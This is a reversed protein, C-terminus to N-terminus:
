AVLPARSSSEGALLDFLHFAISDIFMVPTTSSFREITAGAAITANRVVSATPNADSLSASAALLFTVQETFFFLAVQL